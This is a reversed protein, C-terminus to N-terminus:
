CVIACAAGGAARGRLGGVQPSQPNDPCVDRVHRVKTETFDTRGNM